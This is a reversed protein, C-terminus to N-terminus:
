QRTLKNKVTVGKSVRVEDIREYKAIFAKMDAMISMLREWQEAYLTVPFRGLGYVSLAGKESVHMTLTGASGRTGQSRLKAIEARLEIETASMGATEDVEAGTGVERRTGAIDLGLKALQSALDKNTDIVVNHSAM